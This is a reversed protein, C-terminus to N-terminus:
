KFTRITCWLNHGLLSTSARSPPSTSSFVHAVGKAVFCHRTNGVHCSHLVGCCTSICPLRTFLFRVVDAAGHISALTSSRELPPLRDHISHYRIKALALSIHSTTASNGISWFLKCLLSLIVRRVREMARLSTAWPYNLLSWSTRARPLSHSRDYNM